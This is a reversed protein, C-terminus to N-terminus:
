ESLDVAVLKCNNRSLRNNLDYILYKGYTSKTNEKYNKIFGAIYVVNKNFLSVFESESIRQILNEENEKKSKLLSYYDKFIKSSSNLRSKMLLESAVLIQNALDRAGAGDFKTKNHMLYINNDDWFILDALEVNNVLVTHAFIVNKSKRFTKNYEDEHLRNSNELEYKTILEKSHDVFTTYLSKYIENLNKLYKGNFCYWKGNILYYTIEDHEVFGQFSQYLPIPFLLDEGLNDITFIKYKKIAYLIKTKNFENREKILDFVDCLSIPNEQELLVEEEDNKIYFKDSNFYYREFDDSVVSISDFKNQLFYENVMIDILKSDKVGNKNAPIFYSLTFKDKRQELKNIKSIVLKLESISLSRSIVISDKNEIGLKKKKSENEDFQIGLEEALKRDIEINMQKYISGLDEENIFSTLNRNTFQSSVRNGILDNEIVRKLIPHTKEFLKPILYLGFYYDIFKKIYYSGHGGTCAYISNNVTYFLIYSVSINEMIWDDNDENNINSNEMLNIILHKWDPPNSTEFYVGVFDETIIKSLNIPEKKNIIGIIYNFMGKLLYKTDKFKKAETIKIIKEIDIKYISFRTKPDEGM